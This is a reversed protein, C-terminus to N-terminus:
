TEKGIQGILIFSLSSSGAPVGGPGESRVEIRIGILEAFSLIDEFKTRTASKRAYNGYELTSSPHAKELGEVKWATARVFFLFKKTAKQLIPRRSPNDQGVTLRCCIECHVRLHGQARAIARIQAPIYRPGRDRPM